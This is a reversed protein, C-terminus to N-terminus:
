TGTNYSLSFLEVHVVVDFCVWGRLRASIRGLLSVSLLPLAARTACLRLAPSFVFVSVTFCLLVSLLSVSM